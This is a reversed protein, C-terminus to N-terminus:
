VKWRETFNYKGCASLIVDCVCVFVCVCVCVCIYIYIYIYIYVGARARMCVCLCVFLHDSLGLCYYKYDANTRNNIM